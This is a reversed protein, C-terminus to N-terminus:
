LKELNVLSCISSIDQILNTELNLNKVNELAASIFDLNKLSADRLHISSLIKLKKKNENFIYKILEATLNKEESISIIESEQQL